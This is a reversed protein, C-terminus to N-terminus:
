DQLLRCRPAQSFGEANRALCKSTFFPSLFTSMVLLAKMLTGAIRVAQFLFYFGGDFANKLWNPNRM